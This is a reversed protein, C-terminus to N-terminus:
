EEQTSTTKTINRPNNSIQAASITITFLPMQRPIEAAKSTTEAPYKFKQRREKKTDAPTENWDPLKNRRVPLFKLQSYRLKKDKKYKHKQEIQPQQNKIIKRKTETIGTSSDSRRAPNNFRVQHCPHSQVLWSIAMKGITGYKKLLIVSKRKSKRGM